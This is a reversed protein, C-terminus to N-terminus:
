SLEGEALLDPPSSANDYLLWSDVLPQYIQRFNRLGLAFRRRVTAEMSFLPGSVKAM